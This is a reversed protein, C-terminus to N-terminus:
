PILVRTIIFHSCYLNKKFWDSAIPSKKNIFGSATIFVNQLNIEGHVRLVDKQHM